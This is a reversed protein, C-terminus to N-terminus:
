DGGRRRGPYTCAEVEAQTEFEAECRAAREYFDRNVFSLSGAAPEETLGDYNAINLDGDFYVSGVAFVPRDEDGQSYALVLLSVGDGYCRISTMEYRNGLFLDSVFPESREFTRTVQGRSITVQPTVPDAVDLRVFIQEDGCHGAYTVTPNEARSEVSRIVVPPM